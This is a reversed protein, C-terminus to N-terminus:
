ARSQSDHPALLTGVPIEPEIWRYTAEFQAPSLFHRHLIAFAAARVACLVGTDNCTASRATSELRHFASIYRDADVNGTSASPPRSPEDLVPVASFLFEKALLTSTTFARQAIAITVVAFPRDSRLPLLSWPAAALGARAMLARFSSGALPVCRIRIRDWADAPLTEIRLTFADLLALQPTLSGAISASDTM